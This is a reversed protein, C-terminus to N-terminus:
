ASVEFENKTTWPGRARPWHGIAAMLLWSSPISDDKLDLVQGSSDILQSTSTQVEAVVHFYPGAAFLDLDIIRVAVRQLQELWSLTLLPRHEACPEGNLNVVTGTMGSAQDSAVFVALNAM